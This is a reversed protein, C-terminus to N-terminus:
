AGEECILDKIDYALTLNNSANATASGYTDHKQTFFPFDFLPGHYKRASATDKPQQPSIAQLPVNSQGGDSAVAKGKDAISDSRPTEQTSADAGQDSKVPFADTQQEEKTVADTSAAEKELNQFLQSHGTALPVETDGGNDAEKAFIQGNSSAATKSEKGSELSRAQNEVTKNSSKDQVHVRM